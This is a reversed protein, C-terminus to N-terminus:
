KMLRQEFARVVEDDVGGVPKRRGLDEAEARKAALVKKM